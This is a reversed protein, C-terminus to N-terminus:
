RQRADSSSNPPLVVTFTSGSGEESTVTIQGGHAAVIRQCIALGLGTGGIARTQESDVRYFQEFIRELHEPALGIGHDTVSFQVAGDAGGEAQVEVSRGAPSYKVANDVLNAAVQELRRADGVVRPLGGGVTLAIARDPHRQRAQEV